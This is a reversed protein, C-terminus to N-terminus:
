GRGHGEGKGTASVFLAGALIALVPAVGIHHRGESQFISHIAAFYFVMGILLTVEPWHRGVEFMRAAALLLMATLAYWFINSLRSYFAREFQSSERQVAKHEFTRFAGYDDDALFRSLKTPILKAFKTPNEKIWDKAMQYARDNAKQTLYEPDIEMWGGTAEPNNASLFNGGGNASILIFSHEVSMNRLTWPAIALATCLVLVVSHQVGSIASPRDIVFYIAFVGPLLLSAPQVLATFGLIAGCLGACLLSYSMRTPERAARVGALVALAILGSELVEKTPLSTLMVLNPWIAVILASAIAPAVGFIVRATVFVAAVTVLFACCNALLSATSPAKCFSYLYALVIAQGPPWYSRGAASDVVGGNAVSRAIESYALEDSYLPTPFATWFAIRLLIGLAAALLLWTIPSLKKMRIAVRDASRYISQRALLVACIVASSGILVLLYGIAGPSVRQYIISIFTLAALGAVSAVAATSITDRVSHMGHELSAVFGM